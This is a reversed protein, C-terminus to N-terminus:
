VKLYEIPHRGVAAVPQRILRCTENARSFLCRNYRRIEHMMICKCIFPNRLMSFYQGIKCVSFDSDLVCLFKFLLNKQVNRIFKSCCIAKKSFTYNFVQSSLVTRKCMFLTACKYSLSHLPVKTVHFKSPPIQM